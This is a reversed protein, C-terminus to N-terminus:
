TTLTTAHRQALQKQLLGVEQQEVLGGVVEVRLAHEPELLVQRGVVTGDQGHGVVPVEEVVHRL